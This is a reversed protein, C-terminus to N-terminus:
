ANSSTLAFAAGQPDLGLVIWTGGPVQHPERQVTGGLERIRATAAGISAVTFYYRWGASPTEATKNMMGGAPVGDISFLQYTGMPGMDVADGRTWGFLSAYFEFAAKWEVAELEHWGTTGPANQAPRPPPDDRLPKFLVFAAGQPDAVVAFRGVEPIDSAPRHIKGGAALVRAAAADVDGVAIYGSWAPRRGIARLEQPMTMAGAVQADGVSLLTYPEGGMGADAANWGIVGRYFDTAGALDETTLLEYWVFRANGASSGTM